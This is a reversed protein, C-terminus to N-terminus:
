CACSNQPSCHLGVNYLIHRSGGYSQNKLLCPMLLDLSEHFDLSLALSFKKSPLFALRHLRSIKAM